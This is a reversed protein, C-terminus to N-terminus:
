SESTGPKEIVASDSACKESNGTPGMRYPDDCLLGGTWM